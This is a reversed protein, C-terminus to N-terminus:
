VHARGIEKVLLATKPLAPAQSIQDLDQAAPDKTWIWPGVLTFFALGIILYLSILARTNKKLRIWADEWYSLSPRTIQELNEKSPAPAFDAETLIRTTNM